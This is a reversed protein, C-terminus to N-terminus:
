FPKSVLFVVATMKVTKSKEDGVYKSVYDNSYQFKRVKGLNQDIGVMHIKIVDDCACQPTSPSKGKTVM